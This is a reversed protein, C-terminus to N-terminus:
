VVINLAVVAVWMLGISWVKLLLLTGSMGYLLLLGLSPALLGKRLRDSSGDLVSALAWGPLMSTALMVLVTGLM